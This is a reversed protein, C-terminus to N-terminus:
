LNFSDFSFFSGIRALLIAAFGADIKSDMVSVRDKLVEVDERLEVYGAQGRM